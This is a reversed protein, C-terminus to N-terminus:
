SKWHELRETGFKDDFEQITRHTWMVISTRSLRRNSLFAHYSQPTCEFAILSNNLPPVTQIPRLIGAADRAFLGTEGGDGPRWGDNLLFFILAVSRVVRIKEHDRLPGAGTKFNCSDSEPMQIASCNSRKFWMPNSDNHVFGSLSQPAHHHSGIMFYPTVGVGFLNSMMCRWEVSLFIDLPPGIDRNFGLAYTDYGPINRSYMQPVPTESLGRELIKRLQQELMRYFPAIFVSEAVVHDFPTQRKLWSRNSIVEALNTMKHRAM